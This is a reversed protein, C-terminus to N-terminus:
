GTKQAANRLADWIQVRGRSLAARYNMRSLPAELKESVWAIRESLPRRGRLCYHARLALAARRDLRQLRLVYGEVQDAEPSYEPPAGSGYSGCRPARIPDGGAWNPVRVKDGLMQQIRKRALPAGRVMLSRDRHDVVQPERSRDVTVKAITSAGEPEVDKPDAPPLVGYAYGWALLRMEIEHIM